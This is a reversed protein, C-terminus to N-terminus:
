RKKREFKIFSYKLNLKFIKCLDIISPEMTSRKSGNWLKSKASEISLESEAKADEASALEAEQDRSCSTSTWVSFVLSPTM